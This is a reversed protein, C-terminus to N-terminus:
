NELGEFVFHSGKDSVQLTGDPKSKFLVVSFVLQEDRDFFVIDISDTFTDPLVNSFIYVGSSLPIKKPEDIYQVIFINQYYYMVISNASIDGGDYKVRNGYFKYIKYDGSSSLMRFGSVYVQVDVFYHFERIANYGDDARILGQGNNYFSVAKTSQINESPTDVTVNVSKMTTYPDDPIVTYIKNETYTVSKVDQSAPAPVQTKIFVSAIGNYGTDPVVTDNGNQTITVEKSDQVKVDSEVDVNATVSKMGDYGTDPTINSTGNSTITVRKNDQLRSGISSVNIRIPIDQVGNTSINYYGNSEIEM